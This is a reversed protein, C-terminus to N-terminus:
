LDVNAMKKLYLNTGDWETTVGIDIFPLRNYKEFMDHVDKACCSPHSSCLDPAANGWDDCVM